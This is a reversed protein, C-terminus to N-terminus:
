FSARLEVQGTHIARHEQSVRGSYNLNLMLNKYIEKQFILNWTGNRGPKLGELMQYAIPTNDPFGYEYHIFNFEGQIRFKQNRSYRLKTGISHKVGEEKGTQNNM